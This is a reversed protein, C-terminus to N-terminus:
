AQSPPKQLSPPVPEEPHAQPTDRKFYFYYFVSEAVALLTLSAADADFLKGFGEPQLVLRMLFSSMSWGVFFILAMFLVGLIGESVGEEQWRRTFVAAFAVVHLYFIILPVM